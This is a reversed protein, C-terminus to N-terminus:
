ETVTITGTMDEHGWGCFRDCRFPFTGMKDPIFSIKSTSGPDIDARIKLSQCNFGHRKDLSMFVLTVPIGKKVTINRPQYEFKKATINITVGESDAFARQELLSSVTISMTFALLAFQVLKIGRM